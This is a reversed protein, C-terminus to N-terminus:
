EISSWAEPVQAGSTAAVCGTEYIAQMVESKGILAAPPQENAIEIPDASLASRAVPEAIGADRITYDHAGM